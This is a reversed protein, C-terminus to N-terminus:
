GEEKPPESDDRRPDRRGQQESAKGKRLKRYLAGWLAKVGLLVRRRGGCVNCTASAGFVECRPCESTQRQYLNRDRAPVLQMGKCRACACCEPCKIM